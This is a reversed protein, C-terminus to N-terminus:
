WFRKFAPRSNADDIALMATLVSSGGTGRQAATGDDEAFDIGTGPLNGAALDHYGMSWDPFERAPVEHDILVQLATHRHDARIRAFTRDVADRSGEITQAFTGNPAKLLLGTIGEQANAARMRSLMLDLELDSIPRAAQSTYMLQRFPM